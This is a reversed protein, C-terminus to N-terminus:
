LIFLNKRNARMNKTVNKTDFLIKANDAVFGYDVTTHGTTIVVADMNEILDKTLPSSYYKKNNHSFEPV